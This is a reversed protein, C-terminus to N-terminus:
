STVADHITPRARLPELGCAINGTNVNTTDVVSRYNRRANEHTRFGAGVHEPDSTRARIEPMDALLATVRAAVGEPDPPAAPPLGDLEAFRDAM